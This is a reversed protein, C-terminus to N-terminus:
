VKSVLLALHENRSCHFIAAHFLSNRHMVLKVYEIHGHHNDVRIAEEVVEEYEQALRRLRELDERTANKAAQAAAYGEILARADYAHAIEARTYGRVIHRRQQRRLLGETELRKLAERIPTRSVG